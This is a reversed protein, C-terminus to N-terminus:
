YAHFGAAGITRDNVKSNPSGIWGGNNSVYGDYYANYYYTENYPYLRTKSEVNYTVYFKNNIDIDFYKDYIEPEKNGKKYADPDNSMNKCMKDRLKYKLIEPEAYNTIQSIYFTNRVEIDASGGGLNYTIYNSFHFPSNEETFAMSAKSQPFREFDCDGYTTSLINFKRVIKYAKPPIALINKEDQTVSNTSSSLSSYSLTNGLTAYISGTASYSNTTLIPSSGLLAGRGLGAKGSYTYGLNSSVSVGKSISVSSSNTTMISQTSTAGWHESNFYDKAEDNIMFFSKTLDVYIIKDSKNYFLFGPDGTEAWFSYLIICNGDEYVTADETTNLNQSEASPTVSLVQCFNYMQKCSAFTFVCLVLTILKKM